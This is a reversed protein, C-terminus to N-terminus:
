VHPRYREREAAEVTGHRETELRGVLEDRQEDTLLGLRDQRKLWWTAAKRPRSPAPAAVVPEPPELTELARLRAQGLEAEVMRAFDEQPRRVAGLALRDRLEGM